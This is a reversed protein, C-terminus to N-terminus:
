KVHVAELLQPQWADSGYQQFMEFPIHCNGRDGWAASWSNRVDVCKKDKNGFGYAMMCHGGVEAERSKPVPVKGTKAVKDSEFSSYLDMGFVVPGKTLAIKLDDPNELNVREYKVLVHLKADDYCAKPPKQKWREDTSSYPWSWEHRSDEPAVGFLNMAKFVDRIQAGDDSGTTNELFRADWYIKLRSPTFEWKYKMMHLLIILAGSSGNGTCSGIQGQDFPDKRMYEELSFRKPAEDVSMHARFLQDRPDKADAILGKGYKGSWTAM